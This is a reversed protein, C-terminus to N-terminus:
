LLQYTPHAVAAAAAVELVIISAIAAEVVVMTVVVAVAELHSELAVVRISVVQTVTSIAQVPPAARQNPAVVEVRLPVLIALAAAELRDPQEVVRVEPFLVKVMDVEGVQQLWMLLVESYLREVGV